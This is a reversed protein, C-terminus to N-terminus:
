GSPILVARNFYRLLAIRWRPDARAVDSLLREIMVKTQGYPNVPSLPEYDEHYPLPAHPGYVTASSSFLLTHVDHRRMAGVLSFACDVNNEYYELPKAVSEAAAKLGAFHIVADFEGDAFIRNLGDRDRLDLEVMPVPSGTIQELRQGVVPHSNSFNDVIMADHRAAVLAVVTHSGIYGAGGTVLLRM